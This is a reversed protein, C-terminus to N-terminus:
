KRKKESGSLKMMVSREDRGRREKVCRVHACMMIFIIRVYRHGNTAGASRDTETTSHYAKHCKRWQEAPMEMLFSRFGRLAPSRGEFGQAEHEFNPNAIQGRLDRWVPRLGSADPMWFIFGPHTHSYRPHPFKFTCQCIEPTAPSNTTMTYCLHGRVRFLGKIFTVRQKSTRNPSVGM